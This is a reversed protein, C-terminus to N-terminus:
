VNIEFCEGSFCHSGRYKAVSLLLLCKVNFGQTYSSYKLVLM